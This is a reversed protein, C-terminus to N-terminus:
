GEPGPPRWWVAAVRERPPLQVIGDDEGGQQGYRELFEDRLRQEAPSGAAVLYRGRDDALADDIPRPASPVPSEIHRVEAQIGRAALIALVDYVGPTAAHPERHLAAWLEPDLPTQGRHRAAVIVCLRGAAAEMAGIFAGIERTFYVVHVSLAVDVPAVPEDPPGVPPWAMPPLVTINGHGSEAVSRRLRETMGASADVARVERVHAALDVAVRGAGAGIDLWVDDPLALEALVAGAENAFSGPAYDEARAGWYDDPEPEPLLRARQEANADFLDRWAAYLDDLSPRLANAANPDAAM